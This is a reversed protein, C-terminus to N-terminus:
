SRLEGLKEDLKNFGDKAKGGIYHITTSAGDAVKSPSGIAKYFFFACLAILIIILVIKLTWWLIGGEGLPDTVFDTVSNWENKLTGWTDTVDNWLGATKVGGSQTSIEAYNNKVSSIYSKGASTIGKTDVTGMGTNYAALAKETDGNYRELLNALYQAGGNINQQANYRDTVGVERATAPMLQMIGVAGVNSVASPNFSSETKAVARLLDYDVGYKRSADAFYSDYPTTYSM